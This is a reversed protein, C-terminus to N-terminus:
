GASNKLLNVDQQFVSLQASTVIENSGSLLQLALFTQLGFGRVTNM